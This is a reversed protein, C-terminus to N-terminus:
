SQDPAALLNAVLLPEIESAPAAKGFYHGQFSECGRHKLFLYQPQTEV